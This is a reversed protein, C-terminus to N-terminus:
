IEAHENPQTNKKAMIYGKDSPPPTGNTDATIMPTVTLTKKLEKYETIETTPQEPIEANDFTTTQNAQPATFGM